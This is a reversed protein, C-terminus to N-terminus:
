RNKWKSLQEVDEQIISFVDKWEKVIHEMGMGTKEIGKDIIIRGFMLSTTTKWGEPIEEIKINYKLL